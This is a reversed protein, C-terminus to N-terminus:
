YNWNKDAPAESVAKQRARWCMVLVIATLVASVAAMPWSTRGIEDLLTDDGRMAMWQTIGALINNLSHAAVASWVSGSWVMLYGFLAG